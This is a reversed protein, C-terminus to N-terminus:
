RRCEEPVIGGEPEAGKLYKGLFKEMARYFDFRNEENRFGHGENDKVMYDVEIGRARLAGVMQDSEAINVRPDNAGQVVLLPTAIRDANLAPSNERLMDAQTEPNGVMEYMQELLPKWYPPITRLFSFLNSVGCYDVACAYLGPDKVIGCLTAYGGYSGGYIAIREPDVIDQEVLWAVGDTIDDQMEQGWKGYSIETFRRGYGTSGRFNMQLVAYGRNALFQVEPNYGWADRAWPGGHPNVVLPLDRASEMTLGAPLTLYGEIREGDRASYVIPIMAAMEEEVIWPALDALHTLRDSAVDYHYYSGMTRDGGVYVIYQDEAETMGTIGIDYGEFHNQLRLFVEEAERDFFYSGAGKHKMYFVGLLKGRGNESYWVNSLDYTDNSYLEELEEGTAPDMLVLALKDRGVNSLAYVLSDDPTFCVFGVTERFDTTLVPRFEDEEKERYRIQSNVGDVIAYAVRLRGDNDTQWGQIDGPNEYLMTMEGTNLKLRYPDFIMPDRRNIGIIMLSDIGKLPDIIQTRVGPFATYAREDSGDINIGFLQYNEDGGTDKLYVLRSDNAWFYGALDRETESTIRVADDSGVKQVFINSRNKWPAMYSFYRGDPSIQYSSKEPNRFFTELPLEPASKPACSVAAAVAAALILARKM